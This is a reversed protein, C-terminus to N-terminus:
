SRSSSNPTFLRKVRAGLVDSLGLCAPRLDFWDFVVNFSKSWTLLIELIAPRVARPLARIAQIDNSFNVCYKDLLPTFASPVDEECADRIYLDCMNVGCEDAFQIYVWARTNIEILKFTGDEIDQKFEASFIGRYGITELLTRLSLWAPEVDRIDISKCLSSDGFDLPYMRLRRRALCASFTGLRDRFGDIFYHQDAGGPVYEQVLIGLSELDYDDWIRLAADKDSFRLAKVGVKRSFAQSVRPKIFFDASWDISLNELEDRTKVLFSKPTAIGLATTLASFEGKDQLKNLAKQDSGCIRYKGRLDEPLKSLWLGADDAAPIIIAREFPLERL